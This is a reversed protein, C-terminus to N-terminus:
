TKSKKFKNISLLDNKTYKLNNNTFMRLYEKYKLDKLKPTQSCENVKDKNIDLKPKSTRNQTSQCQQFTKLLGYKSGGGGM